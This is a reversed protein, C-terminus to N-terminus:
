LDHDYEWRGVQKHAYHRMPLDAYRDRRADDGPYRLVSGRRIDPPDPLALLAVMAQYREYARLVDTLAAGAM